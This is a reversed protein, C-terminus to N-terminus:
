LATSRRESFDKLANDAIPDLKGANVDATFQQDWLESDYEALWTRLEQIEHAALAKIEGELQEVRSM